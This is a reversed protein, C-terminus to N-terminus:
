GASAQEIETLLQRIVSFGGNFIILSCREIKQLKIAEILLPRIVGGTYFLPNTYQTFEKPDCDRFNLKCEPCAGM